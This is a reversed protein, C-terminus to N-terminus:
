SPPRSCDGWTGSGSYSCAGWEFRGGDMTIAFSMDSKQTAINLHKFLGCLNPYNPENYVIFGTDIPISTGDYDVALMRTHGGTVPAKKMLTISHGARRLLYAAGMGAGIIAIRSL